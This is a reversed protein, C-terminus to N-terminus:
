LLEQRQPDPAWKQDGCAGACVHMYEKVCVHVCLYFYIKFIRELIYSIKSTSFSFM